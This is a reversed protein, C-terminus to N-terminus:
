AHEKIRGHEVHFVKGEIGIGLDTSTVFCQTSRKKLESLVIKRNSDDLESALDDLLIIPAKGTEELVLSAQAMNLAIVLM